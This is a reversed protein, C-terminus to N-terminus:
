SDDDEDCDDESGDPCHPILTAKGPDAPLVPFPTTACAQEVDAQSQTAPFHAGKFAVTSAPPIVESCDVLDAPNHGIVALRSMVEAFATQMKEQQGVFGQWTCATRSDRAFNSDSLLRMEGVDEDDSLPLPSEAEGVNGGTGPFGIGRLQVEVFIQTDFVFPTSDFPVAQITPDVHDSRAVSHSAILAVVDAPTFGGGDLMRAFISDLNDIPEPILGDPAPAVAPPRGALFQLRPAGPCNTLGVAGAFQILDGATVNHTALFPTLADVSDSIGLNAHFNPEIDPFQIQSGDAGGGGFKGQATLAPSFAIADHFTLRLAEHADEGCQNDFLNEQLDDRLAFFVCCAENTATNVGDPCTVRKYNAASVATALTALALLTRLAM